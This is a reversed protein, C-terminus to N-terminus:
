QRIVKYNTTTSLKLNDAKVMMSGDGSPTLTSRSTAEGNIHETVEISGNALRFATATAGALDGTIPVAPGGLRVDYGYGNGTKFSLVDNVLGITATLSADSASSVAENKWSGSLAHGGPTGTAIRTMTNEGSSTTGDPASTDTWATTMTRGDSSIQSQSTGMPRGKLKQAEEITRGDVVRVSVEDWYSFGEVKHMKGDALVSYAPVCSTCTFVGDQLTVVYPRESLEASVLDIKWVGDFASQAIAPTTMAIFATLALSLIAKMM